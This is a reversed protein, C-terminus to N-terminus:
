GVPTVGKEGLFRELYQRAQWAAELPKEAPALAVVLVGGYEVARLQRLLAECSLEGQGFPVARLHVVGLRRGFVQAVRLPDEGAALLAGTDLEEAMAFAPSEHLTARIAPHSAPVPVRPGAKLWTQPDQRDAKIGEWLDDQAARIQESSLVGQKVLYGQEKFFVKDAPTLYSM